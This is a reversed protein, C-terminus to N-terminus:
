RKGALCVVLLATRELLSGNLCVPCEGSQCFFFIGGQGQDCRTMEPCHFLLAFRFRHAIRVRDREAIKGRLDTIQCQPM